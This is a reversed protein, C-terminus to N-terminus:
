KNKRDRHVPTKIAEQYDAKSVKECTAGLIPYRKFRKVEKEYEEQTGVRYNTHRLRYPVIIVDELDFKKILDKLHKKTGVHGVGNWCYDNKPRLAFYIRKTKGFYNQRTFDYVHRCKGGCECLRETKSQIVFVGTSKRLTKVKFYVKTTKGM